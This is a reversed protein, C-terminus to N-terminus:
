NLTSTKIDEINNINSYNIEILYDYGYYKTLDIVVSNIYDKTNVTINVFTTSCDVTDCANFENLFTFYKQTSINYTTKKNGDKYITEEQFECEKLIERISEYSFEDLSFDFDEVVSDNLYIVNDKKYYKLNNYTFMDENLKHVGNVIINNGVKYSYEYSEVKGTDNKDVEKNDDVPLKPSPNTPASSLFIFVFIFFIAYIGLLTLSKKKPDKLGEKISRLFKM